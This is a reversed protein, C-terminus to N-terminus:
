QRETDGSNVEFSYKAKNQLNPLYHCIYINIKYLDIRDFLINIKLKKNQIKLTYIQVM